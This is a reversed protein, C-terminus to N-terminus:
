DCRGEPGLEVLDKQELVIPAEMGPGMMMTGTVRRSQLAKLKDLGGEAEFHKALIEDVTQAHAVPALVLGLVLLPILKRFM